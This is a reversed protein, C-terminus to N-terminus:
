QVMKVMKLVCKLCLYIRGQWESGHEDKIEVATSVTGLCECCTWSRQVRSSNGFRMTRFAEDVQDPTADKGVATLHQVCDPNAKGFQEIWRVVLDRAAVDANVLRISM